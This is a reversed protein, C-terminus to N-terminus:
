IRKKMARYISISQYETFIHKLKIKKFISWFKIYTLIKLQIISQNLQNKATLSFRYIQYNQWNISGNSRKKLLM